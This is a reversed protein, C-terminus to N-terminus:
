FNLVNDLAEDFDKHVFNAQYNITTTISSHRYLKQLIQINVSDGAISAFSHRAIHCSLNKEIGALTAINKLHRNFSRTATQTKRLIDESDKMDAKRMEPFIFDDKTKKSAKYQNLIPVVKEPVKLTVLKQNKNMRYHLRNDIFDSWKLQLVDGIRIGAFYFSTFWVNLAHRQPKSELKISELVRIEEENLGIKETEPIKIQIKGKGFPYFKRDVYNNTIAINYITRILILYNVVTRPSIKRTAFLYAQFKKLLSDTVDELLIEESKLFEKFIKLRGKETKIQHHNNRNKLNELHIKSVFFFDKSTEETTIKTKINKVSAKKNETVVDILTDNAEAIKRSILNNLRVSNPHSKKIRKNQVDWFKEEIYQGIYLFTSKRNKTIRVAVPFLGQKNPKKRLTVSISSM